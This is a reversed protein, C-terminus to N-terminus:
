ARDPALCPVCNSGAARDLGTQVAASKKGNRDVSYIEIQGSRHQLDVVYNVIITGRLRAATVDTATFNEHAYGPVSTIWVAPSLHGTPLKNTDVVRDSTTCPNVFHVGAGTESPSGLQQTLWERAVAVSGPLSTPAANQVDMRCSQVQTTLNRANATLLVDQAKSAQTAYVPGAIVCLLGIIAVVILLEFLTFGREDQLRGM